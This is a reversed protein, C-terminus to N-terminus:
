KGFANLLMDIFPFLTRTNFEKWGSETEKDVSHFTNTLLGVLSAIAGSPVDTGNQQMYAGRFEDVIARARAERASADMSRLEYPLKALDIKSKVVAYASNAKALESEADNRSITSDGVRIDNLIRNVEAEPMGYQILLNRYLTDVKTSEASALSSAITAKMQADLNTNTIEQGAAGANKQRTDAKINQIQAGLLAMDMISGFLDSLGGFQPSVSSPASVNPTTAGSSGAGGYMLAPNLGAAQMDKVQRQYATNSMETEWDRQIQAQEASWANAERESGTLDSGTYRNWLNGLGNWLGQRGRKGILALITGIM